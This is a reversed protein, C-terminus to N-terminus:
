PGIHIGDVGTIAKQCFVSLKSFLALCVSDSENARRCFHLTSEPVLHRAALSRHGSTHINHGTRFVRNFLFLFRKFKGFLITIRDNDFCRGTAAPAAHAHRVIFLLQQFSQHRGAALGLSGKAIGFYKQLAVKGVGLMDLDLHQPVVEAVKHVKEITVARNLATM